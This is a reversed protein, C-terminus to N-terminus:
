ARAGINPSVWVNQGPGSYLYGQGHVGDYQAKKEVETIM